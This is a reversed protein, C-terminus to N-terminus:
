PLRLDSMNLADRNRLWVAQNIQRTAAANLPAAILGTGLSAWFFPKWNVKDRNLLAYLSGATGLLSVAMGLNRNRRSRLYLDLGGPSISFEKVLSRHGAYEVNNKIYKNIGHLYITHESYDKTSFTQHQAPLVTTLLFLLTSTAIPFKMAFTFTKKKPEAFDPLDLTPAIGRQEQKRRQFRLLV